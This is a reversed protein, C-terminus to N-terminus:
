RGPWFNYAVGGTIEVDGIAAAIEDDTVGLLSLNYKGGLGLEVAGTGFPVELLVELSPDVSLGKDDPAGTTYSLPILKGKWRHGEWPDTSFYMEIVPSFSVMEGPSGAAKDVAAGLRFREGARYFVALYGLAVQREMGLRVQFDVLNRDSAPGETLVVLPLGSPGAESSMLGMASSRVLYERGSNDRITRDEAGALAPLLLTSLLAASLRLFRAGM